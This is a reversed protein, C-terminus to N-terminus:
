RTGGTTSTILIALVPLAKALPTLLNCTVRVVIIYTTLCSFYSTTAQTQFSTQDSWRTPDTRSHAPM